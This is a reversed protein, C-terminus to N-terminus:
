ASLASLYLAIVGFDKFTCQTATAAVYHETVAACLPLRSQMSKGSTHLGQHILHIKGYYRKWVQELDQQRTQFFQM